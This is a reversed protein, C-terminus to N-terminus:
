QQQRGAQGKSRRGRNAADAAFLRWLALAVRRHRQAGRHDPRSTSTSSRAPRHRSASRISSPISRPSAERLRHPHALALTSAAALPRARAPFHHVHRPHHPPRTPSPPPASPSRSASCLPARHSCQTIKLELRLGIYVHHPTFAARRRRRPRAASCDDSKFTGAVVGTLKQRLQMDCRQPLATTSCKQRKESESQERSSQIEREGDREGHGRM